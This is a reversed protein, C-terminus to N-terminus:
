DHADSTNFFKRTIAKHEGHITSIKGSVIYETEHGTMIFHLKKSCAYVANLTYSDVINVSVDIRVLM